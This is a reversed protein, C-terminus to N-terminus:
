WCHSADAAKVGTSTFTFEGCIPDDFNKDVKDTGPKARLLVCNQITDDQCVEASIEYASSAPSSGSFWKFKKEDENVSSSNFVIYNNHQSYYREQQQMLQMLATRGEARKAKRVADQYSPYAISALVSVVVLVVMVEILTFGHWLQLAIPGDESRSSRM